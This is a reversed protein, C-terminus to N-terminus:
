APATGWNQKDVSQPNGVTGLEERTAQRSKCFSNLVRRATLMFDVTKRLDPSIKNNNDLNLLTLSHNYQELTVLFAMVGEDSINNCNLDLRALNTNSRLAHAIAMAGENGVNSRGLGLIQLCANKQLAEALSTAGALGIGNGNLLLQVLVTNEALMAALTSCGADFISNDDLEISTLSCNKVLADAINACGQDDILNKLWGSVRRCGNLAM